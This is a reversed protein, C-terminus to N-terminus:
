CAIFLNTFPMSTTGSSTFALIQTGMMDGKASVTYVELNGVGSYPPYYDYWYIMGTINYQVGCSVTYWDMVHVPIYLDDHSGLYVPQIGGSAPVITYNAVQWYVGITGNARTEISTQMNTSTSTQKATQDASQTTARPLIALNTEPINTTSPAVGITQNGIEFGAIIIVTIAVVIAGSVLSRIM